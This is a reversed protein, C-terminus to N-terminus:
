SLTGKPSGVALIKDQTGWFLNIWVHDLESSVRARIELVNLLQMNGILTFGFLVFGFITITIHRCHNLQRKIFVPCIMWQYRGKGNKVVCHKLRLTSCNIIKQKCRPVQCQRVNRVSIDTDGIKCLLIDFSENSDLFWGSGICVPHFTIWHKRDWDSHMLAPPPNLM